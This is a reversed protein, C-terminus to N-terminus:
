ATIGAPKRGARSRRSPTAFTGPRARCVRADALSARCRRLLLRDSADRLSGIPHGNEDLMHPTQVPPLRPEAALGERAATQAMETLLATRIPTCRLQRLERWSSAPEAARSVIGCPRILGQRR